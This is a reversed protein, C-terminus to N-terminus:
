PLQSVDFVDGVFTYNMNGREKATRTISIQEYYDFIKNVFMGCSVYTTDFGYVTLHSQSPAISLIHKYTKNKDEVLSTKYKIYYIIYKKQSHKNKAFIRNVSMNVTVPKLNDKFHITRNPILIIASDTRLEFFYFFFETLSKYWRKYFGRRSVESERFNLCDNLTLRELLKKAVDKEYGNIFNRMGLRNLNKLFKILFYYIQRDDMTGYPFINDLLTFAPDEDMKKHKSTLREIVFNNSINKFPICNTPGMKQEIINFYQMTHFLFLQLDMNIFTTTVYNFGKDYGGNSRLGCFRWFLGESTSTYLVFREYDLVNGMKFCYITVHYRNGEKEFRRISFISKDKYRLFPTNTKDILGIPEVIRLTNKLTNSYKKYYNGGNSLEIKQYKTLDVYNHTTELLKDKLNQIQLFNM